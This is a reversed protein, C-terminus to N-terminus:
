LVQSDAKYIGLKRRVGNVFICLSDDAIGLIESGGPLKDHVALRREPQGEVRILVFREKGAQVIGLIRWDPDNLSVASAADPLKGWLNSKALSEIAAVASVNSAPPLHWTEIPQSPREQVAPGPAIIWLVAGIIALAVLLPGRGFASWM